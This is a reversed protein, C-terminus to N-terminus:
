LAVGLSFRLTDDLRGFLYAVDLTMVTTGAPFTAGAGVSYEESEDESLTAVYGGRLRAVGFLTLEAGARVIDNVDRHLAKDLDAELLVHDHPRMAIGIALAAPVNEGYSGAASSDWNLMSVIDRGSVGLTTSETLPVLAGVDLGLGLASGTVQEDTSQNNGYSAWRTRLTVGFDAARDPAWPLVEFGRAVGILASTESMVDDGSYLLGAGLTYDGVRYLGAGASYPVLEMQDCYAVLLERSSDTQGLGAPNWFLSSAGEVSAVVAGGMGMADAGIGIDVFAGPIDSLEGGRATDAGLSVAALVSLAVTAACLGRTLGCREATLARAKM